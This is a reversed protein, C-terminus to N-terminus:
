WVLINVVSCTAFGMSVLRGDRCMIAVGSSMWIVFLSPRDRGSGIYRESLLSGFIEELPIMVRGSM